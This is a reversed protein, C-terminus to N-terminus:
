EESDDGLEDEVEEDDEDDPLVDDEGELDAVMANREEILKEKRDVLQVRIDDKMEDIAAYLDDKEVRARITDGPISMTVEAFFVDGKQHRESTKGLEIAVDCPDFRKAFRELSMVKETAFARLAETLEINTAQIQTIRM